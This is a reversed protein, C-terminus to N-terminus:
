WTVPLEVIGGTLRGSRPRVEEVPVALRLTPFRGLLTGFVVQLEIRALQAGPCFHPGHGFALHANDVRDVDFAAPEAFAREDLNASEVSLLVLDGPQIAVGGIEIEANAYRVLGGEKTRPVPVPTPFRLIEEVAATAAAPDRQLAERQAPNTLLLLVGKDIATVTTEHGAFMLGAATQAVYDPTVEEDQASAALLDSIVDEAPQGIKREVLRRMYTWLAALGARSRTADEMNGAEESWARFDARDEYPVGLLECIVLVPLPFSVAEHFDVPPTRSAMADHLGDLLEQVRPRLSAMRRPSFAPALLRRMRQNEGREIDPDGARPGFLMSASFRSARDPDPHCRGLRPDTLLTRVADYGTVLWAPDGVPTTTPRVAADIAM